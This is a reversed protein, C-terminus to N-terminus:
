NIHHIIFTVWMHADVTLKLRSHQRPFEGVSNRQPSKDKLSTPIERDVLKPATVRIEILKDTDSSSSTCCELALDRSFMIDFSYFFYGPKPSTYIRKNNM